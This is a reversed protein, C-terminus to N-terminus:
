QARRTEGRVADGADIAAQTEYGRGLDHGWGIRQGLVRQGDSDRVDPASAIEVAHQLEHGLVVLRDIRGAAAAIRVRLYRSEADSALIRTDGLAPPMVHCLQVIVILDSQELRAVLRRITESRAQGEELVLRAKEDAGRTRFPREGAWASSGLAMVVMALAMVQRV